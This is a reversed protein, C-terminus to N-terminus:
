NSSLGVGTVGLLVAQGVARGRVVQSGRRGGRGEGAGARSAGEVGEVEARLRAGSEPDLSKVPRLSAPERSTWGAGVGMGQM